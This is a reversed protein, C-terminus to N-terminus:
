SAVKFQVNIAEGIELIAYKGEDAGGFDGILLFRM